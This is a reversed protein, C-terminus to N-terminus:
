VMGRGGDVRVVEGTTYKADLALWRVAEAADEPTGARKLPVKALYAAQEAASSEDGQEPWAVVGPAVGNVRVHPALEKALTRVMEHLAAKSMAYAAYGGRPIGMAHIDLMAVIAGAGGGGEGRGAEALRPALHKCLLLPALANVRYAKLADEVELSGLPTQMYVSANHVLVDLRPLVRAQERGFAEVAQLDNLDLPLIKVDVGYANGIEVSAERAAAQSTRYTLVLDCGARAFARATALGVRRVGGTIMVRARSGAEQGWAQAHPEDTNMAHSGAAPVASAIGSAAGHSVPTQDRTSM